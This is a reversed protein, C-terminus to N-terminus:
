AVAPKPLGGAVERSQTKARMMIVGLYAMWAYSVYWFLGSINFFTQIDIGPIVSGLPGLNGILEGIATLIAVWALWPKFMPSKRIAIGVMLIWVATLGIGITQGLAFGAYNNITDFVIQVTERTTPTPPNIWLKALYPYVFIWRVLGFFQIAWACVGLATAVGFWPRKYSEMALIKGFMVVCAIYLVGPVIYIYWALVGQTGSEAVRRLLVDPGQFQINPFGSVTGLVRSNVFLWLPTLIFMFGTLKRFTSDSM